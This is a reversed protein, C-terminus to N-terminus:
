PSPDSIGHGHCLVLGMVCPVMSTVCPVMGTVHLVMDTMNGHGDCLVMGTM